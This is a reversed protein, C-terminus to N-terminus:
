HSQLEFNKDIIKTCFYVCLIDMTSADLKSVMDKYLYATLISVLDM